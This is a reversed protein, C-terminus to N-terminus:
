MFSIWGVLMHTGSVDNPKKDGKKAKKAQPVPLSSGEAAASGNGAVTHQEGADADAEADAEARKRKKNDTAEAGNPAAPEVAMATADAAAPEDPAASRDKAKKGKKKASPLASGTQQSEAQTAKSTGVQDAITETTDALNTDIHAGAVAGPAAAAADKDEQAAAEGKKGKKGGKKKRQSGNTDIGQQETEAEEAPTMDVDGLHQPIVTGVDAAVVDQEASGNEADAVKKEKKGKGGRKKGQTGPAELAANPESPEMVVDGAVDQGGIVSADTKAAAGADSGDGTAAETHEDKVLEDKGSTTTTEAQTPEPEPAVTKDKKGKKGKGKAPPVPQGAILGTTGLAAVDVHGNTEADAGALGEANATAGGGEGADTKDVIATAVAVDENASKKGRRCAKKSSKEATQAVDGGGSCTDDVPKDAAQEQEKTAAVQLLEEVAPEPESPAGRSAKTKKRKKQEKSPTEQVLAEEAAGMSAPAEKSVTAVAASSKAADQQEEDKQLGDGGGEAPHADKGKKDDEKAGRKKKMKEGNKVAGAASKSPKTEVTGAALANFVSELVVPDPGKGESVPKRKKSSKRGHLVSM